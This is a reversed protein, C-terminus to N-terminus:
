EIIFRLSEKYKSEMKLLEKKIDIDPTFGGIGNKSVVRHCPIILPTPNRKMAFGVVRPHTGAVQAIESYTKTEGYPIVSVARYIGSYPYEDFVAISKYPSFSDKKGSLYQSFQMPVVSEEGFRLFSVKHIINGGWIVGVKWLGFRCIGKELEM